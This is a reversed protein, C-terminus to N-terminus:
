DREQPYVVGIESRILDMQQMLALTQAHPVLPSQLEGARLCRGVEVAENGLGTGILPSPPDIRVPETARGDEYATWTAYSPHHFGSPLDLRGRDTAISATRPSQATMSATLAAVAGSEYRASIAVNVDVGSSSLQAVPALEAPDGLLLQALTLPYIGMDLLAGAGLAPDWMRPSADDPVRFGLDAVLQLPQGFDGAALRERLHRVLPNCAMWMAEMFFLGSATAHDLMTSTLGANLAVPKECLVPKGADLAMAVHEPHLAHPSAVYVVDVTDDELMAAYSAHATGGHEAAFAEASSLERSGVAAVRASNLLHLDTAFSHAITGTSCIGWGVPEIEDM